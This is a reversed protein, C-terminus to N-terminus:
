SPKRNISKTEGKKDLTALYGGGGGWRGLIFLRPELFYRFQAFELCFCENRINVIAVGHMHHLHLLHHTSLDITYADLIHLCLM